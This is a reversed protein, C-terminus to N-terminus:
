KAEKDKPAAGTPEANPTQKGSGACRRCKRFYNGNENHWGAWEQGDGGCTACSGTEVEFRLCEATHETDTVICRHTVKDWKKLGKRPGRTLLRYPGGSYLTADNGIREWGCIAWNDPLAGLKRRVISEDHALGWIGGYCAVKQPLYGLHVKPRYCPKATLDEKPKARSKRARTKRLPALGPDCEWQDEPLLSFVFHRESIVRAKVVNHEKLYKIIVRIKTYSFSLQDHLQLLTMPKTRLLDIVQSRKLVVKLSAKHEM